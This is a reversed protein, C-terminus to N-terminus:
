PTRLTDSPKHPMHFHGLFPCAARHKLGRGRVNGGDGGEGSGSARISRFGPKLRAPGPALRRGSQADQHATAANVLNEGDKAILTVLCGDGIRDATTRVITVM